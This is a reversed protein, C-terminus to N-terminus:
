KSARAAAIMPALGTAWKTIDGAGMCVVVELIGEVVGVHHKNGGNIRGTLFRDLTDVRRRQRFSEASVAM